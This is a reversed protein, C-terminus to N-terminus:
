RFGMAASAHSNGTEKEVKVVNGINYRQKQNQRQKKKAM